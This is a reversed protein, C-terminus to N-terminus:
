SALYFYNDFYAALSSICDTLEASLTLTDNHTHMMTDNIDYIDNHTEACFFVESLLFMEQNKYSLFILLWCKVTIGGLSFFFETEM